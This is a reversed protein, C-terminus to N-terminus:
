LFYRLMLSKKRFQGFAFMLDYQSQEITKLTDIMDVGDDLDSEDDSSDEDSSDDYGIHFLTRIKKLLFHERLWSLSLYHNVFVQLAASTLQRCARSRKM